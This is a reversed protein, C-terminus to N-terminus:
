KKFARNNRKGGTELYAILDWVEDQTMSNVLGDPMPSIKSARRSVIDSKLIEVKTQSIPATMLVLKGNDEEVVRGTRIDGDRTEVVTNQYLESVVKSPELISELIDRTSLRSSVAALEPGVSGGSNGFRHCL